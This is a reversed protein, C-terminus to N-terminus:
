KKEAAVSIKRYNKAIKSFVISQTRVRQAAAKNGNGAKSLDTLMTELLSRVEEEVDKLLM